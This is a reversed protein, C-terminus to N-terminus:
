FIRLLGGCKESWCTGKWGDELRLSRKIDWDEEYRFRGQPVKLETEGGFGGVSKGIGCVRWM